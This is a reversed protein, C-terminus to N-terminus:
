NQSAIVWKADVWIEQNLREGELVRVKSGGNQNEIVLVRTGNPVLFLKGSYSLEKIRSEDNALRATALQSLPEFDYAAITTPGEPTNLYGVSGIRPGDQPAPTLSSCSVLLAVAAVYLCSRTCAKRLM